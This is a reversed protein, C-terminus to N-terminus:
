IKGQCSIGRLLSEHTEKPNFFDGEDGPFDVTSTNAAPVGAQFVQNLFMNVDTMIVAHAKSKKRENTTHFAAKHNSKQLFWGCKHM